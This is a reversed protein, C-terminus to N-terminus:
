TRWLLARKGQRVNTVLAARKSKPPTPDAKEFSTNQGFGTTGGRNQNRGQGEEDDEDGEDNGGAEATEDTSSGDSEEFDAIVTYLAKECEELLAEIEVILALGTFKDLAKQCDRIAKRFQRKGVKQSVDEIELGLRSEEYCREAAERAEGSLSRRLSGFVKKATDFEREELATIGEAYSKALAADEITPQPFVPGEPAAPEEAAPRSGGEQATLLPTTVAALLLVAFAVSLRRASFQAFPAM